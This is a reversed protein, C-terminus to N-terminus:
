ETGSLVTKDRRTFEFVIPKPTRVTNGRDDVTEVYGAIPYQDEDVVIGNAKMQVTLQTKKLSEIEAWLRAMESRDASQGPLGRDGKEGRPGIPGREGPPGQEGREGPQIPMREIVTLRREIADLKAVIRDIGDDDRPPPPAIAIPSPKVAPKQTPRSEACRPVYGITERLWSCLVPGSTCISERNGDAYHGRIIGVIKGDYIVPGGSMGQRVTVRSITSGSLRGRFTQVTTSMEPFGDIKVDVDPMVQDSLPACHFPGPIRVALLAADVMGDNRSALVTAALRQGQYWWVMVSQSGTVVHGATLVAARGDSLEGIIVGTGRGTVQQCQYGNVCQTSSTEVCVVEAYLLSPSCALAFLMIKRWHKAEAVAAFIAFAVLPAFLLRLWWQNILVVALLFLIALISPINTM